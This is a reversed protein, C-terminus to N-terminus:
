QSVRWVLREASPVKRRLLGLAKEARELLTEGEVIMIRNPTVAGSALMAPM